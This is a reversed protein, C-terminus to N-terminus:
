EAKQQHYATCLLFALHLSAASLMTQRDVFRGNNSRSLLLRMEASLQVLQSPVLADLLQLFM